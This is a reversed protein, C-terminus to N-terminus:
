SADMGRGPTEEDDDAGIDLFTDLNMANGKGVSQEEQFIPKREEREREKREARRHLNRSFLNRMRATTTKLQARRERGSSGFFFRYACVASVFAVCVIVAITTGMSSRDPSQVDPPQWWGDLEWLATPAGSPHAPDSARNFIIYLPIGFSALNNVTIQFSATAPIALKSPGPILSVINVPTREPPDSTASLTLTDAFRRQAGECDGGMVSLVLLRMRRGQDHQAKMKLSFGTHIMACMGGETQNAADFAALIETSNDKSGPLITVDGRELGTQLDDDASFAFPADFSFMPQSADSCGCATSTNLCFFRVSCQIGKSSGDLADSSVDFFLDCPFSTQGSNQQQARVPSSLLLVALLSFFGQCARRALQLHNLCDFAM